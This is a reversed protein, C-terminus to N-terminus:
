PIEPGSQFFTYFLYGIKKSNITYISDFTLPNEGFFLTELALDGQDVYGGADDSYRSYTITHDENIQNIVSQYNDITMVTGNIATIVDSRKLGAEEAPSGRKVYRLVAIVNNEGERFLTFEYGAELSNGELLNLLEQYDEVILSFRDGSYKLNNFYDTPDITNDLADASPLTSTWYYVEDMVDYIWDNIEMDPDDVISPTPEDDQSCAFSVVLLFMLIRISLNM